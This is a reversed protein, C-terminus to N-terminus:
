QTTVSYDAKPPTAVIVGFPSVGADENVLFYLIEAAFLHPRENHISHGTDLWFEARGQGTLRLSRAMDITSNYIANPFFNDNDGAVLMLRSGPIAGGDPTIVVSLGANDDQFSFSIQELDIAITWQRSFPSYIEYRDFRSRAIEVNKCPQWTGTGDKYGGRYWEVPQPPMDLLANLPKTYMDQIYGTEIAHNDFPEPLTAQAQLGGLYAAVDGGSIIGLYKLPAMATVSWSVITRLYKHDKDYRGTLLASMNGGLSGGMVAVIRDTLGSFMTGLKGIFAIIYDQEFKLVDLRAHDYDQGTVQALDFTAGFASNPMDFSIVTYQQGLEYGDIIFWNAMDVAEEARSGGGHLYIIIKSDAPIVPEEGPLARPPPSTAPQGQPAVLLEGGQDPLVFSSFEANSPGVWTYASAIMYRTTVDLTGGLGALPVTFSVDFQPYPSTPVNVPRHPTDDFGSVAIWDLGTRAMRWAPENSRTAWLAGYAVNLVNGAADQIQEATFPNDPWAAEYFMVLDSDQPVWGAFTTYAGRGTVALQALAIALNQDAPIPDPSAIVGDGWAIPTTPGGLWISVANVLMLRPDKSRAFARLFDALRGDDEPTTPGSYPFGLYAGLQDGHLFTTEAAFKYDPGLLGGGASRILPPCRDIQTLDGRNPDVVIAPFPFDAYKCDGPQSLATANVWASGSRPNGWPDTPTMRPRTVTPQESPYPNCGNWPFPAMPNQYTWDVDWCPWAYGRDSDLNYDPLLTGEPYPTGNLYPVAFALAAQCNAMISGFYRQSGDFTELDTLKSGGPNNLKFTTAPAPGDASFMDDTGEVASDLMDEPTSWALVQPPFVTGPTEVNVPALGSPPFYPRYPSHPHSSDSAFDRESLMPEIPYITNDSTAKWLTTLDLPGWIATLDEIVPASYASMVLTMRLAHYMSYLILNILYLGAKITDAAVTAGAEILATLLDGLVKLAAEAVQGLWELGAKLEDWFAQLSFSQGSAPAPPPPVSSLDKTINTWLQSLIEGLDGLIDPPKPKEVDDETALSLIVRYAGYAGAIDDASPPRGMKSPHPQDPPYTQWIADAIFETWTTFIPDDPAKISQVSSLGFDFLGAQIDNAVKDIVHDIIPDIGASGINCLDSLRSFTYRAADKRAPDGAAATLKDLNDEDAPKDAKTGQDHWSAWVHADIFNEVLHHRQWTNRWPSEVIRNVYAHGVTDAVYHTLYGLAYAGLCKSTQSRPAAAIEAAANDLLKQTFCGTKVYHLFDAWYWNQPFDDVQRLPLFFFWFNFEDTVLDLVSDVLIGKINAFVQQIDKWIGDTLTDLTSDVINNLESSLTGAARFTGALKIAIDEFKQEPDGYDLMMYLIDPGMAGLIAYRSQLADDSGYTSWDANLDPDKLFAAADPNDKALRALRQIITTHTGAGPM